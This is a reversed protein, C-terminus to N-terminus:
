LRAIADLVPLIYGRFQQPNESMPFHGLERMITVQAGPIGAATRLTDEPTCSFDYEGTLLFLPCRETRIGDLRGRLDGDVRYFYLDGRFVGPGGQMYQWLTEHRYVDPSQPAVLGSVLAACVEGGHVDGRHLWSTDYWPQQFDAAEVGILARFREAHQHALQLVIRGGISCGILAPRDLALAQCFAMVTEVYRETSLRYEEDQWGAPPYSKGHWPMDFAIVRYRSTIDADCLMHRYQRSDAGATHLCVLPIGEGAEEFYVRCPKGGIDIHVYRGVIPELAANM